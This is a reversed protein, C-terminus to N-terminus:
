LQLNNCLPKCFSLTCNLQNISFALCTVIFPTTSKLHWLPNFVLSIMHSYYNGLWNYFLFYDPWYVSLVNWTESKQKSLLFLKLRNRFVLFSDESKIDHPLANWLSVSRYLFTSSAYKSNAKPLSFYSECLRTNYHHHNSSTYYDHFYPVNDFKILKFAICLTKYDCLYSPFFWELTESISKAVRDSKNKKLVLRALSRIVKEFERLVNKRTNGWVTSM